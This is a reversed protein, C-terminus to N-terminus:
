AAGGTEFLRAALAREREVIAGLFPAAGRMEAFTEFGKELFRQLTSLGAAQAPGRMLRLSHRLLPKRTYRDLAQGVALMLEIQREREEALGVGRWAEGYSSATLPMATLVDAMAGDLRESLAHLAALAEVTAVIEKPFLRVLAPVVRAFEGDRQSFDHPGYLDELFFRAALAYKPSTLMDAYTAEFRAHQYRKVAAVREAHRADAQRRARETEVQALHELIRAGSSGLALHPTPPVRTSDDM